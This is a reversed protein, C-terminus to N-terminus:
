QGRIERVIVGAAQQLEGDDLEGGDYTSVIIRDSLLVVDDLEEDDICYIHGFSERPFADKAFSGTIYVRLSPYERLLRQGNGPGASSWLYVPAVQALRKLAAAAGPRLPREDGRYKGALTGDVDVMVVVHHMSEPRVQRRKM